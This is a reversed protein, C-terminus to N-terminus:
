LLDTSMEPESPKVPTEQAPAPLQLTALIAALNVYDITPLEQLAPEQRTPPNTAYHQKEPEIPQAPLNQVTVKVEVEVTALTPKEPQPKPQPPLWGNKLKLRAGAHLFSTAETNTNLWHTMQPAKAIQEAKVEALLNLRDAEALGDLQAQLSASQAEEAALRDEREKRIAESKAFEAEERAKRAKSTEFTSPLAVNARLREIYFGPANKIEGRSGVKRQIESDIYELQDVVPQDTPLTSLM